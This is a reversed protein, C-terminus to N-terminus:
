FPDDDDTGDEIKLNPDMVLKFDEHSNARLSNTLFSQETEVSIISNLPAKMKM